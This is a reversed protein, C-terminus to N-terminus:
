LQRSRIFISSKNLLATQCTDCRMGPALYRTGTILPSGVLRVITQLSDTDNRLTGKTNCAECDPCASGVSLTPHSLIVEPCGIYESASIQGHNAEPNWKPVKKNPTVNGGPSVDGESKADALGNLDSLITEDGKNKSGTRKETRFGFLTRLRQIGLKKAQLQRYLWSYTSLILLIIKKDDELISGAEFRTKIEDLKGAPLNIIEPAIKRTM